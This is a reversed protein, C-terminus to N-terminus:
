IDTDRKKYYEVIANSYKFGELEDIRYLSHNVVAFRFANYLEEHKDFICLLMMPVDLGIGTFLCKYIGNSDEYFIIATKSKKVEKLVDDMEQSNAKYNKILPQNFSNKKM